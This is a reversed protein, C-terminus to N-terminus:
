LNANLRWDIERTWKIVSNAHCKPCKCSNFGVTEQQCQPCIRTYIPDTKRKKSRWSFAFSFLPTSIWAKEINGGHSTHRIKILRKYDDKACTLVNYIEGRHFGIELYPFRGQFILGMNFLHFSWMTELAPYYRRTGEVIDMDASEGRLGAM